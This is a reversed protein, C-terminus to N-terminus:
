GAEAVIRRLRAPNILAIAGRSRAIIGDRELANLLKTVGERHAGIRAALEAHTPPPSVVVRGEGLTRSLRLLEACLREHVAFHAQEEVRNNLARIEGVLRTLVKDRVGAFRDITEKFAAASMRAIVTDAIALIGASRPKGDLASYEGEGQNDIVWEGASIKRWTCRSELARLAEAPLSAFLPTRSLSETTRNM